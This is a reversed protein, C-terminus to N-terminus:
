NRIGDREVRYRVFAVRRSDPSWSPVNFSGQGGFFVPTLNRVTGDQLNLLRLQVDKGFPHAQGQDQLYAIYAVWKGDPSPHPFWNSSTDNTMPQQGTGDVNMRWLQMRGDRYSNFYIYRGDPAYEPGDDLEPNTTLRKEADGDVPITYVDFNGNREACYTLTQGNPSWGHWYSPYLTTVRRPVGGDVPLIYITSGAGKVTTDQSSIVLQRGDPSLGHDNNCHRAFGTNIVQLGGGSLPLRYLLGGSNVILYSGDKSWNPAEIHQRAQHVVTRKGTEIDVTEIISEMNGAPQSYGSLAAALCLSLFLYKMCSKLQYPIPPGSNHTTGTRKKLALSFGWYV